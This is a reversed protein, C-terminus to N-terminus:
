AVRHDEQAMEEKRTVQREEQRPRGKRGKRWSILEDVDRPELTGIKDVIELSLEDGFHDEMEQIKTTM